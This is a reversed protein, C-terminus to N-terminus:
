IKRRVGDGVLRMLQLVLEDRKRQRTFRISTRKVYSCNVVNPPDDCSPRSTDVTVIDPKDEHTWHYLVRFERTVVFFPTCCPFTRQQRDIILDADDCATDPMCAVILHLSFHNATLACRRFIRSSPFYRDVRWMTVGYSISSATGRDM